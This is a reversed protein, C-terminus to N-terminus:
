EKGDDTMMSVVGDVMKGIEPNGQFLPNQSFVKVVQNLGKLKSQSKARSEDLQAVINELLQTHYTLTKAMEEPTM